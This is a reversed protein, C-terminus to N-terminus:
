NGFLGKLKDKLEEAKEKVEEVPDESQLVDEIEKKALGSLDPAIKPDELPGSIRMPISTGILEEFEPDTGDEPVKIVTTVMKYDLTSDVLNVNGEGTVRLVPMFVKLDDSKLVGDVATATVSLSEFPTRQPRPPSPPMQKRYLSRTLRVAYVLDINELAGEGVDFGVNGSLSNRMANVTAGRADLAVKGSANGTVLVHGIADESLKGLQVGDLNERVTLAPPNAAADLTIEGSAKGQYLSVEVPKLLVKGNGAKLGLTVDTLAMGSVKLSGIRFTGEADLDRLAEVPIEVDDDGGVTQEEAGEVVPPLYRDADIADVGLDFRISQKELNSIGAKGSLQTDDLVFQLDNFMASNDTLALTAKASAKKLVADDATVPADMGMREMLARPSFEDLSFQGTINPASMIATGALAANFTLGLTEAQLAEIDMTEKDLDAAFRKLGIKLPVEGGPLDKGTLGVDLTPSDLEFQQYDDSYRVTSDLNVAATVGSSELVAVVSSEFDIPEGPAIEGTKLDFDQIDIDTGAQKDVYRIQADNIALGGIQLSDIGASDPSDAAAPAADESALDDWNTVGRENVMLNLRLGDLRVQDLEINRRLLPVLRVGMRAGDIAVFPQDGFGQANSLRAPGLEVALWPFFSLGIDGDVTLDRGTQEAVQDSLTQKFDNPDFIFFLWIAAVVLLLVLAGVALGLFKFLGKM